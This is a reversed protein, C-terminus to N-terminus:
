KRLSPENAKRSIAYLSLKSCHRVHLLPFICSFFFKPGLKLGFSGFDTGFRPKKWNGWIQNMLKGQFQVCTYSALIEFFKLNWSNLNRLKGPFQVPYYSPVHGLVYYFHFGHFFSKPCLNPDFLGFNPGLNLPKKGNEWTQHMVKRYIAYSSLNSCHRTAPPPLVWMCFQSGLIPCLILNKTVKELKTWLNEQFHCLIIAQFM